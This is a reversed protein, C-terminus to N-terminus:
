LKESKIFRAFEAIRDIESQTFEGDGNNFAVKVDKLIDPIFLQTHPDLSDTIGLLFDATIDLIDAVQAITEPPPSTRNVEWSGVTQQSVSLREALERQSMNRQKRANKLNDGFM